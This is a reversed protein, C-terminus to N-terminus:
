RQLIILLNSIFKIILVTFFFSKSLEEEEVKEVEEELSLRDKVGHMM